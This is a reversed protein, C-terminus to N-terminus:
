RGPDLSFLTWQRNNVSDGTASEGAGEEVSRIEGKLFYRDFLRNYDTWSGEQRDKEM